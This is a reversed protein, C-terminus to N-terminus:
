SHLKPYNNSHFDLRSNNYLQAGDREKNLISYPHGFVSRSEGENELNSLRPWLRPADQEGSMEELSRPQNRVSLTRPLQLEQERLSLGFSIVEPM